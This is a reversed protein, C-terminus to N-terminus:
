NKTPPEPSVHIQAAKNPARPAPKARQPDYNWIHCLAVRIDPEPPVHRNEPDPPALAVQVRGNPRKGARTLRIRASRLTGYQERAAAVNEAAQATLELIVPRPKGDLLVALYGHWRWALGKDCHECPDPRSCPLTRNQAFHTATGTIDASIITATLPRGAPTRIIELASSRAAAPPRNTWHPM